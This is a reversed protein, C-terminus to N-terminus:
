KIPLRIFFYSNAEHPYFPLCLHSTPIGKRLSGKLGDDNLFATKQGGRSVENDWVEFLLHEVLWRRKVVLGPVSWV